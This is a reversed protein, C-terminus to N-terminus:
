QLLAFQEFPLLQATANLMEKMKEIKTRCHKCEKLHEEIRHNIEKDVTGALYAKGHEQVKECCIGAYQAGQGQLLPATSKPLFQSVSFGVTLLLMVVGVAVTGQILRRHRKRQKLSSVLKGVEGQTCDGWLDPNEQSDSPNPNQAQM